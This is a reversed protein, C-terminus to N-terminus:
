RPIPQMITVPGINTIASRNSGPRFLSLEVKNVDACNPLLVLARSPQVDKTVVGGAHFCRVTLAPPYLRPDWLRPLQGDFEIASLNKPPHTLTITLVGTSVNTLLSYNSKTLVYHAGAIVPTSLALLAAISAITRLRNSVVILVFMAVVVGTFLLLPTTLTDFSPLGGPEADIPLFLGLHIHSIGFLAAYSISARRNELFWESHRCFLATNVLTVAICGMAPLWQVWRSARSMWFVMGVALFPIAAVWFRATWSESATSWMFTAVYTMMLGLSYTCLRNRQLSGAVLGAFGLFYLPAYALLGHRVDYLQMAIRTPLAFFTVHNSAFAPGMFSGWTAQQLGFYAVLAVVYLALDRAIIAHARRSTWSDWLALVVFAVSLPLARIHLYPLIAAALITSLNRRTSMGSLAFTTVTFLLVEPYLLRLYAILPLSLSVCFISTITAADLAQQSSFQTRLVKFLAVIGLCGILFNMWRAAELGGLRLIAGFVVGPGFSPANDRTVEAYLYAAEKLKSKVLFKNWDDKSVHVTGTSYLGLGESAYRPEDGTFALPGAILHVAALAGLLLIIATAQRPTVVACWFEHRSAALADSDHSRRSEVRM